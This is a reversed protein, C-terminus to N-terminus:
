RNNERSQTRSDVKCTLPTMALPSPALLAALADASKLIRQRLARPSLLDMQGSTYVERGESLTLTGSAGSFSI